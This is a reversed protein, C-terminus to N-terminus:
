VCMPDTCEAQAHAQFLCLFGHDLIDTSLSPQGSVNQSPEKDDDPFTWSRRMAPLGRGLEDRNLGLGAEAVSVKKGTTQFSVLSKAKLGKCM